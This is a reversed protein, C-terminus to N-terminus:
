EERTLPIAMGDAGGAERSSRNVAKLLRGPHLFALTLVVLFMPVADFVYLYTENSAITGDTGQLFEIVRIANRLIILASVAYLAWFYKRWKKGLGCTVLAGVVEGKLGKEVRVAMFIFFLFALLQFILGGAIYYVANEQQKGDGYALTVTGMIQLGLCAVDILIYIKSIWSTRIPIYEEADLTRVFRPLTMYVSASILPVAGILLFLQMLYPDSLRINNHAWQRAYYGGVCGLFFVIFFWSRHWFVQIIQTVSAIGFLILFVWGGIKSPNYPYFDFPAEGRRELWSSSM